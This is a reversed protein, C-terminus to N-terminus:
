KPVFHARGPRRERAQCSPWTFASSCSSEWSWEITVRLRFLFLDRPAGDSAWPLRSSYAAVSAALHAMSDIRVGAHMASAGFNFFFPIALNLAAFYIVSKRLRKLEPRPV